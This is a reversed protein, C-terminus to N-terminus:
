ETVPEEETVGIEYLYVGTGDGISTNTVRENMADVQARYVTPFVPVNEAMYEQWENYVEQRYEVDFAEESLGEALIEDNEESVYRSYNSPSTRGYLSGPDPDIGVTWAAQYVDISEEDEEVMDYFANFEHLRGDLLEVNLGVQEWSQIYYQAVPEATDGGEMSAFSIVLEEGEPDERFGDGTVDEYGAEDLLQNAREVDYELGPNDEDHFEPHSPPILTTGDWRLGDYFNEGIAEDDVAHGMAQRLEVDAMKADDDMVNEGADADWEGLKFGIYTYARDTTALFDLNDADMHDVYQDAPFSTAYDIDGSRLSNAVVNPDVIQLTVEELGPTGRWYDDNRSLAVSEGPVIDEVEYPGFGIPNQRVEDSEEMEDIPIDEFIHKALPYNWIGGTVISPNAELFTIEMTKDDIVEIGSIEDAEGEHYEVVGEVNMIDEGYRMGTYDPDAIVEYAFQWDEATVPEGDHWNVDENIEFTYTLNDESVEYTAAGEQNYVFDEDWQLLPEDFWSLIQSDHTGFYFNWNLIGEFPSDSVIAVNMSGDDLIEDGGEDKIQDFDELDVVEDSQVDEDVEIDDEDDAEESDDDEDDGEEATEEGGDDGEDESETAEDACAALALMSVMSATVVSRRVFKKM